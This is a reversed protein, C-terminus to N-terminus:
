RLGLRSGVLGLLKNLPHSRPLFRLVPPRRVGLVSREQELGAHGPSRELGAEIWRLADARREAKLYISAVNLCLDPDFGGDEVAKEALELGRKLQGRERAILLGFLSVYAPNRPEHHMAREACKLADLCNGQGMLERALEFLERASDGARGPDNM